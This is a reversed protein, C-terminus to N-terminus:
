FSTIVTQPPVHLTVFFPLLVNCFKCNNRATNADICDTMPLQYASAANNNVTTATASPASTPSSSNSSSTAGHWLNAIFQSSSHFIGGGPVNSSNENGGGGPGITPRIDYTSCSSATSTRNTMTPSLPSTPSTPASSSSCSSVSQYVSPPQNPQQNASNTATGNKQALLKQEYELKKRIREDLAKQWEKHAMELVGSNENGRIFDLTILAWADLTQVAKDNDEDMGPPNIEGKARINRLNRDYNVRKFRNANDDHVSKKRAMRLYRKITDSVSQSVDENDISSKRRNHHAGGAGAGSGQKEAEDDTTAAGAEAAAEERKYEKYEEALRKIENLQIFNTQTGCSNKEVAQRHVQATKKGSSIGTTYGPLNLSSPPKRQRQNTTATTTPMTTTAAPSTSATTLPDTHYSRSAGANLPSSMKTPSFTTKTSASTTTTTPVSPKTSKDHQKSVKINSSSGGFHLLSLMSSSHSLSTRPKPPMSHKSLIRHLQQKKLATYIKKLAARDNLLDSNIKEPPVNITDPLTQSRSLLRLRELLQDVVSLQQLHSHAPPLFGPGRLSVTTSGEVGYGCARRIASGSPKPRQASPSSTQDPRVTKTGLLTDTKIAEDLKLHSHLLELVQDANIVEEQEIVHQSRQGTHQLLQKLRKKSNRMAGPYSSKRRWLIYSPEAACIQQFHAEIKPIDEKRNQAGDPILKRGADTMYKWTKRTLLWRERKKEKDKTSYRRRSPSPSTVSSSPRVAVPQTKVQTASAVKAATTTSTTATPISTTTKNVEALAEDLPGSRKKVVQVPRRLTAGSRAEPSTMFSMKTAASLTDGGSSDM